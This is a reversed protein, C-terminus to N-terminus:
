QCFYESGRLQLAAVVRISGQPFSLAIKNLIEDGHSRSATENGKRRAEPANTFTEAGFLSTSIKESVRFEKKKFIFNVVIFVRPQQDRCLHRM